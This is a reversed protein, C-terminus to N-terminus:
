QRAGRFCYSLLGRIADGDSWRDENRTEDPHRGRLNDLASATVMLLMGVQYAVLGRLPFVCLAIVVPITAVVGALYMAIRKNRSLPLWPFEVHGTYCSLGLVLRFNRGAPIAVHLWGGVRLKRVPVGFVLGMLAHGFEHVVTFVPMAVFFASQRDREPFGDRRVV